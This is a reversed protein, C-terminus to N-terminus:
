GISHTGATHRGITSNTTRPMVQDAIHRHGETPTSGTSYRSSTSRRTSTYGAERMSSSSGCFQCGGTRRAPCHKNTDILQMHRRRGRCGCHLTAMKNLISRV